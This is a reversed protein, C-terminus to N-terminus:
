RRPRVVMKVRRSEPDVAPMFRYANSADRGYHIIRFPRGLVDYTEPLKMPARAISVKGQRVAVPLPEMSEDQYVRVYDIYYSQPFITSDIGFRGGWDGGFAFNIIMYFPTIFPWEDLGTRPNEYTAVKRDDLYWDLRDPLWELTFTYFNNWPEVSMATDQIASEARWNYTATHASFVITEPDYGVNEMIDM